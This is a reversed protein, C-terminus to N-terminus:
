ILCLTYARKARWIYDCWVKLQDCLQPKTYINKISRHSMYRDCVWIYYISVLGFLLPLNEKIIRGLGLCNRIKSTHSHQQASPRHKSNFSNDLRDSEHQMQLGGVIHLRQSGRSSSTYKYGFASLIWNGRMHMGSSGGHHWFPLCINVRPQWCLFFYDRDFLRLGFVSSHDLVGPHCRHWMYMYVYLM